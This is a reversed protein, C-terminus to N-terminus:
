IPLAFKSIVDNLLAGGLAAKFYLFGQLKSSHETVSPAWYRVKWVVVCLWFPADPRLFRETINSRSGVVREKRIQSQAVLGCELVDATTVGNVNGIDCRDM